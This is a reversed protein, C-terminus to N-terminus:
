ENIAEVELGSDELLDKLEAFRTQAGPMVYVKLHPRWFGNVGALGWSDIKKWLVEVLDVVAEQPDNGIVITSTIGDGQASDIILRQDECYIRVPRLYGVAGPSRTPLAWGEGREDAISSSGAASNGTSQSGFQNGTTGIRANGAFQNSDGADGADSPNRVDGDASERQQQHSTARVGTKQNVFGGFQNSARLGGGGGQSQGDSGSRFGKRTQFSREQIKKMEIMAFRKKSEDIAEEIADSLQPDQVGFDIAKDGSVLEYGFEDDWGAMAHRAMVYSEAGDPRVVLLPYPFGDDVLDFKLYYERVAILAADLPNGPQRVNAFDRRDIEIRHPQLILKDKTCEIYIPRRNTGNNGNYPLISYTTQQAFEAQQLLEDLESEQQALQAALDDSTSAIQEMSEKERSRLREITKRHLTLREELAKIEYNLHARVTREDELNKILQPRLETLGKIRINQLGLINELDDLQEQYGSNESAIRTQKDEDASKVVLVLLIILVGFTCILVALFPFLSVAALMNNSRRRKM